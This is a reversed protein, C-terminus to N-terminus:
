SEVIKHSVKGNIDTHRHLFNSKEVPGPKQQGHQLDEEHESESVEHDIAIIM